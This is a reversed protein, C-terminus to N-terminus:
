LRGDVLLHGATLAASGLAGEALLARHPVRGIPGHPPGDGAQRPRGHQREQQRVEIVDIVRVEQAPRAGRRGVGHAQELDDADRVEPEDQGQGPAGLGQHPPAEPRAVVQADDFSLKFAEKWFLEGTKKTSLILVGM